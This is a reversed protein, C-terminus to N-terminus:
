SVRRLKSVEGLFEGGCGKHKVPYRKGGAMEMKEWIQSTFSLRHGCEHCTKAQEKM